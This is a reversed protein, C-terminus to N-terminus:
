VLGLQSSSGSPSTLARNTLRRNTEDPHGIVEDTPRENECPRVLVLVECDGSSRLSAPGLPQERRVAREHRRSRLASQQRWHDRRHSEALRRPAVDCAVQDVSRTVGRRRSPRSLPSRVQRHASQAPSHDHPVHRTASRVARMTENEEFGVRDSLPWRPGCRDRLFCALHHRATSVREPDVQCEEEFAIPANGGWQGDDSRDAMVESRAIDLNPRSAGSGHASADSRPLPERAAHPLAVDPLAARRDLM